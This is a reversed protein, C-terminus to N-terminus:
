PREARLSRIVAVASLLDACRADGHLGDSLGITFAGARRGAEIDSAADGVMVSRAFCIEPHERQARFLLGPLPKRCDCRGVDHTCAYIGSLVARERRLLQILRRHVAVLDTRSMIGRAVGRQNTVVFVMFGSARLKDIAEAAGPLLTVQGPHTVYSGRAAKQNITGDRDLFATWRGDTM